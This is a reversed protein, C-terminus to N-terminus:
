LCHECEMLTLGIKKPLIGCISVLSDKRGVAVFLRCKLTCETVTTQKDRQDIAARTVIMVTDHDEYGGRDYDAGNDKLSSVHDVPSRRIIIRHEGAIDRPNVM